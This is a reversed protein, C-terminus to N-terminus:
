ESVRDLGKRQEEWDTSFLWDYVNGWEEWSAWPVLRLMM